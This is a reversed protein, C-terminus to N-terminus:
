GAPPVTGARLHMLVFWLSLWLPRRYTLQFIDRQAARVQDYSSNDFPFILVLM